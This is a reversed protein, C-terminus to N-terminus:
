EDDDEEEEDDDEEQKKEVPPAPVTWRARKAYLAERVDATVDFEYRAVHDTVGQSTVAYAAAAAASTIQLPVCSRSARFASDMADGVACIACMRTQWDDDDGGHNSCFKADDVRSFQKEVSELFTDTIIGALRRKIQVTMENMRNKTAEHEAILDSLSTSAVDDVKPVVM